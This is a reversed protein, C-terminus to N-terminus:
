AVRGHDRLPICIWAEAAAGARRVDFRESQDVIARLRRVVADAAAPSQCVQTIVVQVDGQDIDAELTARGGAAGEIDLAEIVEVVMAALGHRADAEVGHRAAFGDLQAGAERAGAPTPDVEATFWPIAIRGSRAMGIGHGAAARRAAGDTLRTVRTTRDRVVDVTV